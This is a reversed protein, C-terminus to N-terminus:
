PVEPAAASFVGNERLFSLVLEWQPPCDNHGCALLELRAQPAAARLAHAHSVPISGDQTGHILLVPKSFKALVARSDLRYRILWDPLGAAAIMDRLSTFTSELVLAALPRRAALQAIAGGGMSRGYGVIRTADIRPDAVARDYAAVFAAVIADETPQGGSRGYGPYEVLLVAMGADRLPAVSEAWTDIAEGNGHAHIALPMRGTGRAPLLWAEVKAGAELWIQEGGVALRVQPKLAYSSARPFALREQAERVLWLALLAFAIVLVATVIFGRRRFFAPGSGEHPVSGANM